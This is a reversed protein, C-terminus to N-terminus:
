KNDLIFRVSVSIAVLWCERWADSPGAGIFDCWVSDQVETGKLVSMVVDSVRVKFRLTKM